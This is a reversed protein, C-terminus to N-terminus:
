LKQFLSPGIHSIEGLEPFDFVRNMFTKLAEILIMPLYVVSVCIKDAETLRSIDTMQGISMFIGLELGWRLFHMHVRCTPFLHKRQPWTGVRLRQSVNM